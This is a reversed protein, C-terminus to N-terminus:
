RGASCARYGGFDTGGFAPAVIVANDAEAFPTWRRVAARAYRALFDDSQSGDLWPFGHALVLIRVPRGPIFSAVRRYEPM